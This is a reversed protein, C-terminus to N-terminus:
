KITVNAKPFKVLHGEQGPLTTEEVSALEPPVWGESPPYPARAAPDPSPGLGAM